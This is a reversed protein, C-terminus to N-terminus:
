EVVEFGHKRGLKKLSTEGPVGDADKGKYGLKVQWQRYTKCGEAELAALVLDLEKDFQKQARAWGDVKAAAVMHKLSVKPKAPRKPKAPEDKFQDLVGKAVLEDARKNIRPLANRVPDTPCDKFAFKSHPLYGVSNVVYGEIREAAQIAAFLEECKGCFEDGPMAMFAVAHGYYNLNYPFGAVNKDNITHTGKARLPQGEYITHTEHDVLWNYSVGSGFRDVGIQEVQRAGADGNVSTVTIHAFMARVPLHVPKTRLRYAYINEQKSGWQARTKVRYRAARLRAIVDNSM